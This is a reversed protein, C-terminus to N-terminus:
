EYHLAVMPDVRTARRAPVFCAGLAVGTLIFSIVAFTLPDTASVGFLLSTMIRTLLFAGVLGVAVGIMALRFGQGVVLKLVDSQKAGLAMRIGIEHTRETVSYSMVGYIGVAALLLAVGAFIALLLMTFRPKSVSSSVLQEMTRINYVPQDKDMALVENRLAAVMTGPTLNTRTVFSMFPTTIQQYPLYMQPIPEQELSFHRINGVIGVVERWVSQGNSDKNFSLRKGLADEGPWDRRAMAESIIITKTAQESDQNAFARGRLVPINMVRFYDNTTARIETWDAKETRGEITPTFSADDGGLPLHSVAGVSEVGPLNGARELLEQFFTARQQQNAYKSDPLWLQVAVVNKSNFGPDISQLRYFSKIMLGAGVLLILAVAIESVVLLSRFRHRSFGETSGRSGEKLSSNLDPKSAQLAPVLGFLLGTLLAVVLTFGLVFGDLGPRSAYHIDAPSLAVLFDVAWLAVLFGLIGGLVSLLMSETLMQRVIRSRSAGLATRIAIEKQRSAARALMLNAVNACAILLVFGVAGFLVLLAPRVNGVVGESVPVVHAFLGENSLPYQEALRLSVADMDAQAQERTVGEKLRAIAAYARNDRQLKATDFALHVWVEAGGVAIERSGFFLNPLPFQFGDPMVGIITYDNSNLKIAQGIIDPASNFRRQWLNHSLIAVRGAGPKGEEDMFTRGREAEVGLLRFLSTSARIGGVREPADNGTLSPEWSNFIAIDEFVHNQERWDFFNASAVSSNESKDSGSEWLSVLREPARYPLSRLLVANVVSFIATNAGIGLALALVAVITFGPKKALMRIGYRLDQFLTGM